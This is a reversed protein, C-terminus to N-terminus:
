WVLWLQVGENAKYACQQLHTVIHMGFDQAIAKKVMRQPNLKRQDSMWQMLYLIGQMGDSSLSLM